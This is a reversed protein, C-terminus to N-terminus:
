YSISAFPCKEKEKKRKEKKENIDRRKKGLFFRFNQQFGREWILASVYIKGYIVIFMYSLTEFINVM